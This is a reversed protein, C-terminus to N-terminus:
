TALAQAHGLVIWIATLAMYGAYPISREIVRQGDTPVPSTTAPMGLVTAMRLPLRAQLWSAYASAQLRRWALVLLGHVGALLSGGVWILLLAPSFGFWLGLAAACKVDGAGMWRLLYFPLLAAFAALMGALGQWASVQFSHLDGALAALGMTLGLLVMWNRVKRVRFDMVAIAILWLLWLPLLLAPFHM